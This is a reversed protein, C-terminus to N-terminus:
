LRTEALRLNVLQPCLPLPFPLFSMDHSDQQDLIIRCGPRDAVAWVHALPTAEENSVKVRDCPSEGWFARAASTWQDIQPDTVTAAGASPAMVAVAALAALVALQKLM